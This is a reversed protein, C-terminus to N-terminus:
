MRRHRAQDVSVRVTHKNKTVSNRWSNGNSYGNAGPSCRETAVVKMRLEILLDGIDSCCGSTLSTKSLPPSGNSNLSSFNSNERQAPQPSDRVDFKQPNARANRKEEGCRMVGSSHAM